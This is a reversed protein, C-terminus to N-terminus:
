KKASAVFARVAERASNIPPVGLVAVYSRGGDDNEYSWAYAVRAERHGYVDFVEVEGDWVTRGQFTEHVRETSEHDSELGHLDRIVQRLKVIEPTV